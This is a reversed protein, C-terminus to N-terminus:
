SSDARPAPADLADQVISVLARAEPVSLAFFAADDISDGLGLILYVRAGVLGKAAVVAKAPEARVQARRGDPLPTIRPRPAYAALYDRRRCIQKRYSSHLLTADGLVLEDFGGDGWSRHEPELGAASRLTRARDACSASGWWSWLSHATLRGRRGFEGNARGALYVLAAAVRDAKTARRLCRPDRRAVRALIRRTITRFEVDLLEDCCTDSRALVEAVFARDESAVASWDFPEDPLPHDDLSELAVLDGVIPLLGDFIGKPSADSHSPRDSDDWPDTRGLAEARPLNLYHVNDM